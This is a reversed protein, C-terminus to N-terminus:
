KIKIDHNNFDHILHEFSGSCDQFFTDEDWDWCYRWGKKLEPCKLLINSREEEQKDLLNKVLQVEKKLKTKSLKM